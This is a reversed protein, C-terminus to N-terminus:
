RHRPLRREIHIAVDSDHRMDVGALGGQGLADEKIGAADVAHALHVFAGGRHVPHLLFPLAADRDGGGGGGAVPAVVADVDDVGGAVHVEGDLDLARQADEVARDGHEAGHAADLGLGLRHPALGVLVDNRADREDVLHVADARVEVVDDLHHLVPEAGLRHREVDRHEHALLELARDVQDLHLRDGVDVLGLARGELDVVDRAVQDRAGVDGAVLQELRDGLEVLLQEVVVQVLLGVGGVVQPARDALARDHADDVRHQAARGELVLPDLAQEVRDHVVQGRRGVFRGDIAVGGVGELVDRALGGVVLRERRQRELDHGVREDALEREEADIGATVPWLSRM